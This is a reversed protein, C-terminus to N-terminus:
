SMDTPLKDISATNLVQNWTGFVPAAAAGTALQRVYKQQVAGFSFTLKEAPADDGSDGSQEQSVPFALSFYYRTPTASSPATAGAKRAVIEVGAFHQGSALRQFVQPTTSDVTKEVELQNFKAKGTGAGGTASTLTTPNEVGWNFSKISIWDKFTADTSEGKIQTDTSVPDLRMFYDTAAHASPALALAAASAVTLAVLKSKLM